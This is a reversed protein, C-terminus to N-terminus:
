AIVWHPRSLSHRATFEFFRDGPFLAQQSADSYRLNTPDTDAWATEVELVLLAQDGDEGHSLLDAKGAHELYPDPIVAGDTDLFGFWIEVDKGQYPEALALAIHAPDVGTLILELSETGTDVTERSAAMRLFDGIGIWDFGGWELTGYGSWTRWPTTFNAYFLRFPALDGDLEAEVAATLDRTM